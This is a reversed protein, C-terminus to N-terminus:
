KSVLFYRYTEGKDSTLTFLVLVFCAVFRSENLALDTLMFFLMGADNDNIFIFCM